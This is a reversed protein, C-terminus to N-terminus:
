KNADDSGGQNEIEGPHYAKHAAKVDVPVVHTYIATSDLSSHGLLQQIDRIDAGAQLLHTACAHRLGHPSVKKRLHCQRQYKRLIERIQTQKLPDGTRVVFLVREFSRDKVLEARVEDLYRKIWETAQQGLPVFREKGGKGKRIHLIQESLNVDFVFVEELEGVRIATGYMTELLARDRIGLPTAVDPAALLQKVQRLSLVSRPLREARRIEIIHDAPHVLLQGAGTLHDFLRKVARLRLARTNGSIPEARVYRQYDDIHERTVRRLDEIFEDPLWEEFRKLQDSYDGITSPNYNRLRLDALLAAVSEALTM